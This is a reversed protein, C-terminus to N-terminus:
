VEEGGLINLAKSIYAFSYMLDSISRNMVMVSPIGGTYKFSSSLIPVNTEFQVTCENFSDLIWQPTNELIPVFIPEALKYVITIPNAQLWAKALAPTSYNATLLRVRFVPTAGTLFICQDTNSYLAPLRDTILNNASVTNYVNSVASSVIYESLVGTNGNATCVTGDLITNEGGRLVGLQGNQVCIEDFKTLPKDLYLSQNFEKYPEYPTAVTGEELQINSIVTNIEGPSVALEIIWDDRYDTINILNVNPMAIYPDKRSILRINCLNSGTRNKELYYKGLPLYGIDLIKIYPYTTTNGTVRFENGVKTFTVGSKSLTFDDGAKAKNKGVVKVDCRYKGLNEALEEGADVMEQTVLKDEFTSQMGQFPQMPYTQNEEYECIIIYGELEGSTAYYSSEIKMTVTDMPYSPLSFDKMTVICEKIGTEGCAFGTSYNGDTSSEIGTNAHNYSFLSFARQSGDEETLTNKTINVIVKYKGKSKFLGLKDLPIHMKGYGKGNKVLHFKCGEMTFIATVFNDAVGLNVLTNGVVKGVEVLGEKSGELKINNGEGEITLRGDANENFLGNLMVDQRKNTYEVKDLRNDQEVNKTETQGLQSEFGQLQQIRTDVEAIKNTVTSTLENEKNDIETIKSNVSSIMSSKATDIEKVKSNILTDKLNKYEDIETNKTAIYNDIELDKEAKYNDLERDKSNKYNNIDTTTSNKYDSLSKNIEADKLKKYNDIELNKDNKYTNIDQTTTSKYEELDQQIATDKELKYDDIKKNTDNILKVIDTKVKEIAQERINEADVRGQEALVRKSEAEKISGDTSKINAIATTTADMMTDHEVVREKEAVVRDAEAHERDTENSIRTNESSVRIAEADKIGQETAVASAITSEVEKVKTDFTEVMSNHEAVRAQEAQVRLQEALIRANENSELEQLRTIIDIMIQFNDDGPILPQLEQVTDNNVVYTIQGLLVRDKDDIIDQYTHGLVVYASYIGVEDKCNNQLNFYVSSTEIIQGQAIDVKGSPKTVVLLGLVDTLDVPKGKHTIKVSFDSTQNDSINFEMETNNKQKSLDLRLMYKRDLVSM